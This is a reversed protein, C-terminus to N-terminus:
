GEMKVGTWMGRKRLVIGSAGYRGGGAAPIELFPVGRAQAMM